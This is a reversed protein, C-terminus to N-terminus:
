RKINSKASFLISYIKHFRLEISPKGTKPNRKPVIASGFCLRTPPDNVTNVPTNHAMVLMTNAPIPCKEIPFM